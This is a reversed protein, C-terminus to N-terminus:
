ITKGYFPSFYRIHTACSSDTTIAEKDAQRLLEVIKEPTGNEQLPVIAILIPPNQSGGFGRKKKLVEERKNARIQQLQHRRDEKGLDKKAHKSISKVCERGIM